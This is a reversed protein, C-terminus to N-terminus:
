RTAHADLPPVAQRHEMSWADMAAALVHMKKIIQWLQCAFTTCASSQNSYHYPFM